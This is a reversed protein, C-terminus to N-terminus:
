PTIITVEHKQKGYKLAEKHSNFYIDVRSDYKKALRDQIKYTKGDIICLSGLPYKRSAAVTIGQVPKKGDACIGKANTGCCLKCSCYATTVAVLINTIM